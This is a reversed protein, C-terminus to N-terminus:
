KTSATNSLTTITETQKLKTEVKKILEPLSASLHELYDIEEAVRATPKLRKGKRLFYLGDVADQIIKKVDDEGSLEFDDKYKEYIISVSIEERKVPLSNAFHVSQQSLLLVTTASLESEVTKNGLSYTFPRHRDNVNIIDEVRGIEKNNERLVFTNAGDKKTNTKKNTKIGSLENEISSGKKKKRETDKEKLDNKLDPRKDYIWESIEKPSFYTTSVDKPERLKALALFILHRLTLKQSDNM